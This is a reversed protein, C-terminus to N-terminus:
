AEQRRRRRSLLGFAAVGLLAFATPEPVASVSLIGNGPNFSLTYQSDLNSALSYTGTVGSSFIQYTSPSSPNSTFEADIIANNLAVSGGLISVQDFSSTSNIDVQDTGALTLLGSSLSITGATGVTGASFTGNSTLGGAAGVTGTGTFAGSSTLQSTTAGSITGNATLNGTSLAFANLDLTGGVAVSANSGNTSINSLLRLTGTTVPAVALNGITRNSTLTDPNATSASGAYTFTSTASVTGGHTNGLNNAKAGTGTAILNVTSGVSSGNVGAPGSLDFNIAKITGTSSPKSNTLQWNGTTGTPLGLTANAATADFTNGNLDLVFTVNAASGSQNLLATTSVNSMLQLTETASATKDQFQIQGMSLTNGATVAGLQMTASTNLGNTAQRFQVGGTLPSDSLLSNTSSATNPAFLNINAAIGGSSLQISNNAGSLSLTDTSGLATFTGGTVTFNNIIALRDVTSQSTGGLGHANGTTLFHQGLSITGSTMTLAGNITNAYSNTTIETSDVYARDSYLTGGSVTVNGTFTSTEGVLAKDYSTLELVGGSNLTISPAAITSVRVGSTSIPNFYLVSSGGAAAGLTLSNSLTVTTTGSTQFDLINNFASLQTVDIEDIAGSATGTYTATHDATTDTFQATDSSTTPTGTNPSWNAPDQWSGSTTNWTFIAAQAAAQGITVM